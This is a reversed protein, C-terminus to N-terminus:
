AGREDAAVEPECALRDVLTRLRQEWDATTALTLAPADRVAMADAPADAADLALSTVTRCAWDALAIRCDVTSSAVDVIALFADEGALEAYFRTLVDTAARM